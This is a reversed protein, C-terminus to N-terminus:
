FDGANLRCPIAVAPLEGCFLWWDHYFERRLQSIRAASLGYKAAVDRAREGVM